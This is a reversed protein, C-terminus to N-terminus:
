ELMLICNVRCEAVREVSRCGDFLKGFKDHCGVRIQLLVLGLDPDWQNTLDRLIDEACQLGETDVLLVVRRIQCRGIASTDVNFLGDRGQHVDDRSVPILDLLNSVLAGLFDELKAVLKSVIDEWFEVDLEFVSFRTLRCDPLEDIFFCDVLFAVFFISGLQLLFLLFM